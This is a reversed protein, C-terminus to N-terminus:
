KRQLNTIHRLTWSIRGLQGPIRGLFYIRLQSSERLYSKWLKVSRNEAFVVQSTISRFVRSQTFLRTQPSTDSENHYELNASYWVASLFANCWDEFLANRGLILDEASQWERRVINQALVFIKAGQYGKMPWISAIFEKFILALRPLRCTSLGIRGCNRGPM